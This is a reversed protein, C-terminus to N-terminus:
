VITTKFVTLTPWSIEIVNVPYPKWDALLKGTLQLMRQRAYVRLEKMFQILLAGVLTLSNLHRPDEIGEVNRSFCVM